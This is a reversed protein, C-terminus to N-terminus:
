IKEIINVTPTATSLLRATTLCVYKSFMNTGFKTISNKRRGSPDMRFLGSPVRRMAPGSTGACVFMRM